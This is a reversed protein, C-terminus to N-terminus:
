LINSFDDNLNSILIGNSSKLLSFSIINFIVPVFFTNDRITFCFKIQIKTNFQIFVDVPETSTLNFNYQLNVLETNSEWEFLRGTNSEWEFLRRSPRKYGTTVPVTLLTITKTM